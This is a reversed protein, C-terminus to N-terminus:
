KKDLYIYLEFITNDHKNCNYILLMWLVDRTIAKNHKFCYGYAIVLLDISHDIGKKVLM